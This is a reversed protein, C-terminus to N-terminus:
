FSSAVGFWTAGPVIAINMRTMSVTRQADVSSPRRPWVWYVVTGVLAATGVAASINAYRRARDGDELYGIAADCTAASTTGTTCNTRGVKDKLADAKDYKSNANSNFALAAAFGGFTVVGGLVLVIPSPGNSDVRKPEEFPAVPVATARPVSTTAPQNGTTALPIAPGTDEALSIDVRVDGGKEAIAYREVTSYGVKSVAIKHSGPEVFVPVTLPTVGVDEGDIQVKAGDVNVKATVAGVEKRADALIGELTKRKDSPHQASMMSKSAHQAAARYEKLKMEVEALSFVTKTQTTTIV